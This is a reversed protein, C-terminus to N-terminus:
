TGNIMKALSLSDTEFIINNCRFRSMSEVAWQLAEAETRISSEMGTVAREGAWM